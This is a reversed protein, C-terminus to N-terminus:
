QRRPRTTYAHTRIHTLSSTGDHTPPFHTASGVSTRNPLHMVPFCLAPATCLRRSISYGTAQLRYISVPIIINSNHAPLPDIPPPIGHVTCHTTMMDRDGAARPSARGRVVLWSIKRWGLQM